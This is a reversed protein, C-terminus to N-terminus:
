SALVQLGKRDLFFFVGFRWTFGDQGKQALLDLRELHGSGNQCSLAKHELPSKPQAEFQGAFSSLSFTWTLADAQTSSENAQGSQRKARRNNREKEQPSDNRAQAGFFLFFPLQARPRRLHLLKLM